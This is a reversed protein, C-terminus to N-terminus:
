RGFRGWGIVENILAAGISDIGEYDELEVEEEVLLKWVIPALTIDLFLGSRAAVGMLKGLFEFMQIQDASTADPNLM